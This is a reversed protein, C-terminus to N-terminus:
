AQKLLLITKSLNLMKRDEHNATCNEFSTKSSQALPSSIALMSDVHKLWCVLVGQFSHFLSNLTHTPRTHTHTHTTFAPFSFMVQSRAEMHKWFVAKQNEGEKQPALWFPNVESTWSKSEPGKQELCLERVQHPLVGGEEARQQLDVLLLSFNPASCTTEWVHRSFTNSVYPHSTKKKIRGGLTSNPTGPPKLAKFGGFM